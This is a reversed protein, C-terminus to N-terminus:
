RTISVYKYKKRPLDIKKPKLKESMNLMVGGGALYRKMM